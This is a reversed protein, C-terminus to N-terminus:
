AAIAFSQLVDALETQDLERRQMLESSIAIVAPWNADVLEATRVRLLRV